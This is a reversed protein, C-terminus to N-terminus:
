IFGVLKRFSKIRPGHALRSNNPVDISINELNYIEVSALRPATELVYQRCSAILPSLLPTTAFTASELIPPGPDMSPQTVIIETAGQMFMFNLLPANFFFFNCTIEFANM